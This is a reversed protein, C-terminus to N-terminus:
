ALAWKRHALNENIRRWDLFLLFVVAPIAFLNNTILGCSLTVFMVASKRLLVFMAISLSAFGAVGFRMLIQTIGDHSGIEYIDLYYDYRVSGFGIPYQYIINIANLIPTVRGM